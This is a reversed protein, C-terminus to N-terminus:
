HTIVKAGLQLLKHPLNDYGRRLHDLGHITTYGKAVLAALVLAAGARLDTMSVDAGSLSAKGNITATHDNIQIDAGMRLLESVHMFRNEFISERVTSRGDAVCLLAMMQAQTDTAFGPFPETELSIAKPSHSCYLRLCDAKSEISMGVQELASLVATLHTANCGSVSIDGQTIAAAMLLTALEIRDPIVPYRDVAKLSRVGEITIIPSGAGKIQAGAQNLFSALDSIEPERAVNNLVTKGESIAAAMMLNETAGVSPFDLDITTGRLNKCQLQVFGHEIEVTAGLAKFGKLHIDVPRAGISCGGPLPIKAFGNIALIPGAVLFSARMGTVLDYPALHKPQVHHNITVVNNYFSANVNLANLMKLMSQVDLLDPVNTLTSCGKLMISAALIPLVSNKSGSAAVTGKLPTGGEIKLSHPTM